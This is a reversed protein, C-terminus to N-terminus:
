GYVRLRFLESCMYLEYSAVVGVTASEAPTSFMPVTQRTRSRGVMLGSRPDTYSTLCQDVIDMLSEVLPLQSEPKGIAQVELLATERYGNYAAESTRNLLLTLYPFVPPEPQSRVYITADRGLLTHLTDGSPTVYGLLAARITAYIQVTSGTSPTATTGPLAYRPFDTM